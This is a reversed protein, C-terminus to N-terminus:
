AGPEPTGGAAAPAPDQPKDPERRSASSKAFRATGLGVLFAAGFFLVPRERAFDAIDDVLRGVPREGLEQVMGDFEGAVNSVFAATAGHGQRDLESAGSGAAAALARLYDATHNKRDEAFQGAGERAQGLVQEGKDKIEDAIGKSPSAASSKSQSSNSM